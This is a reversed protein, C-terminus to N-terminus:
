KANKWNNPNNKSRNKSIAKIYQCLKYICSNVKENIKLFEEESIFSLKKSILLQTEIERLSGLSLTLFHYYEKEGRSSGEAINSSVSTCARRLQSVIGTFGQEERPYKKTIEYLLPVLEVSEEYFSLTKYSRIKKM